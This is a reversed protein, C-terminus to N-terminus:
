FNYGKLFDYFSLLRKSDEPTFLFPELDKV